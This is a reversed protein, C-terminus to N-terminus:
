KPTGLKCVATFNVCDPKCYCNSASHRGALLYLLTGEALRHMLIQGVLVEGSM